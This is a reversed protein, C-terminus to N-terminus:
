TLTHGLTERPFLLILSCVTQPSGLSSLLAEPILPM